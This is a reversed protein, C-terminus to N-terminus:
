SGSVLQVVGLGGGGLVATGIVSYVIIELKRIRGNQKEVHDVLRKIDCVMGGDDTGPVGFMAQHVQQTMQEPTLNPM